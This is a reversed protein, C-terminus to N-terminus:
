VKFYIKRRYFENMVVLWFIVYLIAFALSGNWPGLWHALGNFMLTKLSVAKEVGGHLQFKELADRFTVSGIWVAISNMGFILCPRTWWTIKRMDTIYYCSALVTAAMGGMLLVLSSTWLNQNIPFFNAWFAGAFMGLAGFFYLNVLKEHSTASTRLCRGAWLGMLTTVIAPLTSLLGKGELYQGKEVMGCHAGMIHSDIYQVWNGVKELVGAGCGPVPVFTMLVYYLVLVMAAFIMQGRPKWWLHMATAATSCLAIRQLVNFFRLHALDLAPHALDLTHWWNMTMGIAFLVVARRFVHLMIDGNGAGRARRSDVSYPIAAGVIFVFFPFILDTFSWGHWPVHSLTYYRYHGDGHSNVLVMGLLTLGRFVDLSLLREKRSPAPPQTSAAGTAPSANEENMTVM